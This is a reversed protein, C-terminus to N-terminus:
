VTGCGDVLFFRGEFFGVKNSNFIDGLYKVRLPKHLVSLRLAQLKSTNRASICKWKSIPGQNFYFNIILNNLFLKIYSLGWIQHGKVVGKYIFM